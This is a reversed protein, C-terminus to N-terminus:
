GRSAACQVACAARKCHGSHEGHGIWGTQWAITDLSHKAMASGPGSLNFGGGSETVRYGRGRSAM